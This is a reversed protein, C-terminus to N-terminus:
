FKGDKCERTNVIDIGGCIPCISIEEYPPSIFGHTDYDLKPLTFIAGCEICKYMM